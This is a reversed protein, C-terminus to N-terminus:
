TSTEYYLNQKFSKHQKYKEEIRKKKVLDSLSVFLM